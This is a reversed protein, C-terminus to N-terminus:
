YFEPGMYILPKAQRIQVFIFNDSDTLPQGRARESASVKPSDIRNAGVAQRTSHRSLSGPHPRSKFIRVHQIDRGCQEVTHGEIVREFLPCSFRAPPGEQRRAEVRLGQSDWTALLDPGHQLTTAKSPAAWDARVLHAEVAEVVQTETLM